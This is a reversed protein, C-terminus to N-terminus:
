HQIQFVTAAEFLHDSDSTDVSALGLQLLRMNILEDGLYLYRPLINDTQIFANDRVLRVAKGQLWTSLQEVAVIGWPDTINNERANIGILDVTYGKDLADGELIVYLTDGDIIDAVIAFVEDPLPTASPIPTPTWAQAMVLTGTPTPVMTPLATPLIATPGLYIQYEPQATQNGCGFLIIGSSLVLIIHRIM